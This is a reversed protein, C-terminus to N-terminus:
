RAALPDKSRATAYASGPRVVLSRPVLAALVRRAPSAGARVARRVDEAAALAVEGSGPDLSGPPAYSAREMETALTSAAGGPAGHRDSLRTAFARPSESPPIGIGVDIAADQVMAWAASVDGGEARARQRGLRVRHVLAPLALIGLVLLVAGITPLPNQGDAGGVAGPSLADSEAPDDADVPAGPTAEPAQPDTEAQNETVSGPIGTGSSFGTPVGLSATPEFPIWGIGEFHVEPWAHLQNSTVSYVTQADIVDGNATGPLYGIVIRSPMDMTRAMLAFASAFHVCYGERQELFEAVAEAGSGDFGEEVPADLSYAFEGGRFWRQLSILRDYDTAAEATVEQALTPIIEPIDAPLARLDDDETGASPVARAQELTPRPVDARVTYEQGQSEGSQAIVTRNAPAAGWDGDLGDVGVAPWPVPLWISNLNVVDVTTATSALTIDEAVSVAGLAGEEELPVTRVRDPEWEDGEFTSLTTARLYPPVSADSRVQLVEVDAPRRLDDGLALTADIGPGFGSGTAVAARPQPLIPTVAVAVVLGVAAIGLATAPVGARREAARVLPLERARTDARLLFLIMGALVVFATVDVRGPVAIAPILSVAVIGISALLPMRATLVVHDTILALLGMAGVIVFSLAFTADLPASGRVIEDMAAPIVLAAADVTSPTPIVWLLATDGLFVGTLFLVWVVAGVLSAWAPAIGTRRVLVGAGLIGTALTAAGLFWAGMEVVRLVPILAAVLTGLAALGLTILGPRRGRREAVRESRAESATETRSM